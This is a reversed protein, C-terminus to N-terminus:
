KGWGEGHLVEGKQINFRCNKGFTHVSVFSSYCSVSCGLCTKPRKHRMCAHGIAASYADEWFGTWHFEDHEDCEFVWGPFDMWKERYVRIKM